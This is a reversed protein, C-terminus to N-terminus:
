YNYSQTEMYPNGQRENRVKSLQVFNNELRSVSSELSINM